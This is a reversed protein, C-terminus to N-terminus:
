KRGWVAAVAAALHRHTSARLNSTFCPLLVPDHGWPWGDPEFGHDARVEALVLAIVEDTRDWEGRDLRGLESPTWKWIRGLNESVVLVGGGSRGGPIVLLEYRTGDGPQANIRAIGKNESM